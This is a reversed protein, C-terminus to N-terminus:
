FLLDNGNKNESVNFLHKTTFLILYVKESYLINNQVPM